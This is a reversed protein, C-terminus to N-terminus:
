NVKVIAGKVESMVGGDFTAKLGSKFKASLSGEASLATDAKISVSMGKISNSSTAQLATTAGSIKNASTAKSTINTAELNLASSAKIDINRAEITISSSSISLKSSGVKLDISDDAEITINKAKESLAKTVKLTYNDETSIAM